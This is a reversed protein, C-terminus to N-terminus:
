QRTERGGRLLIQRMVVIGAAVALLPWAGQWSVLLLVGGLLSFRWLAELLVRLPSSSRVLAEASRRVSAFYAWGVVLGGAFYAALALALQLEPLVSPLQSM